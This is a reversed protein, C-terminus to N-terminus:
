IRLNLFVAPGPTGPASHIASERVSLRKRGDAGYDM